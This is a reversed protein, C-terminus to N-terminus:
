RLDHQVAGRRAGLSANSPPPPLVGGLGWGERGGLRHGAVTGWHCTGAEVANTVSLLRGWGGRQGGRPDGRPDRGKLQM